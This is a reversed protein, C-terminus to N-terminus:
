VPPNYQAQEAARAGFRSLRIAANSSPRVQLAPRTRLLEEPLRRCVFTGSGHAAEFYGEATLQDYAAAVTARSLELTAALERTSPVREGSRFRGNLIGRRWEDYLQRQLPISSSRDIPILM